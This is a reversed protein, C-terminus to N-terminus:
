PTSNIINFIERGSTDVIQRAKVYETDAYTIGSLLKPLSLEVTVELTVTLSATASKM